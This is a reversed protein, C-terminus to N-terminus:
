RAKDIPGEPGHVANSYMFQVPARKNSETVVEKFVQSLQAAVAIPEDGCERGGRSM